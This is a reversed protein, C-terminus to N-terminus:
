FYELNNLDSTTHYEGGEEHEYEHGMEKILGFGPCYVMTDTETFLFTEGQRVEIEQAVIRCNPWFVIMSSPKAGGSMKFKLLSNAKGPSNHYPYDSVEQLVAVTYSVDLVGGDTTVEVDGNWSAPVTPRNLIQVPTNFVLDEDEGDDFERMGEWMIASDTRVLNDWENWAELDDDYMKRRFSDGTGWECHVKEEFDYVHGENDDEHNEYVFVFEENVPFHDATGAVTVNWTPHSNNVNGFQDSFDGLQLTMETGPALPTALAFTMITKSANWSGQFDTLELALITLLDIRIVEIDEDGIPENFEIQLTSTNTGIEMGSAPIFGVLEPATEDLDTGTDYSFIYDELLNGDNWSECDTGVTITVHTDEQIMDDFVLNYVNHDMDDITFTLDGKGPISATIGSELSAVVMRHNFKIAVPANRLVDVAEDVPTTELVSVDDTDVWFRASIEEALHNGLTDTLGVAFTLTVQDGPNWDEHHIEVETGDFLVLDTITGTSLTINGELSDPDLPESFYGYLTRDVNLNTSESDPNTAVLIPGETDEVPPDEGDVPPTVPDDDSCATLSLSMALAFIALMVLFFKRSPHSM